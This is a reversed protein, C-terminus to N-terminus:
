ERQSSQGISSSPPPLVEFDDTRHLTAFDRALVPPPVTLKRTKLHFWAGNTRIRASLDGDSRTFEHHLRWRSGDASLGALEVSVNVQDLVRLERRYDIEDRFVVPAIREAELVPLLGLEALSSMRAHIAYELYASSTLHRNLDLDSARVEFTKEYRSEPDAM